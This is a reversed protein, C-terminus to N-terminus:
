VGQTSVKSPCAQHPVSDFAKQFDLCFFAYVIEQRDRIRLWKELIVPLQLAFFRQPLIGFQDGSLLDQTISNNLLMGFMLNMCKVREWNQSDGSTVQSAKTRSSGVSEGDRDM